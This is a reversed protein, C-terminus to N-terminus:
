MAKKLEICWCEGLGDIEVKEPYYEGILDYQSDLDFNHIFKTIALSGNSRSNIATLKSTGETGFKMIIAHNRKSYLLRVRDTYEPLKQLLSSYIRISYANDIKHILIKPCEGMGRRIPNKINPSERLDSWDLNM